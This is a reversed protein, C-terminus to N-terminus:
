QLKLIGTSNLALEKQKTEAIHLNNQVIWVRSLTKSKQWALINGSSYKKSQKDENKNNCNIQLANKM